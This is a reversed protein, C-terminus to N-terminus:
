NKDLLEHTEAFLHRLMADTYRAEGDTVFKWGNDSYKNARLNRGELRRCRVVSRLYCWVLDIREKISNRAPAHQDLGNPDREM